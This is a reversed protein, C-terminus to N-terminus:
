VLFSMGTRTSAARKRPVAMVAASDPAVLARWTTLNSLIICYLLLKHVIQLSDLRFLMSILFQTGSFALWLFFPSDINVLYVGWWFLCRRVNVAFVIARSLILLKLVVYSSILHLMKALTRQTRDHAVEVVRPIAFLISRLGPNAKFICAFTTTPCIM